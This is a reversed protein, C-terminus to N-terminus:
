GIVIEFEEVQIAMGVAVLRQEEQALVEGAISVRGQGVSQVRLREADIRDIRLQDRSVTPPLDLDVKTYGPALPAGSTGRRGVIWRRGDLTVSGITAGGQRVVLRLRRPAAAAASSAMSVPLEEGLMMTRDAPGTGGDSPIDETGEPVLVVAYLENPGLAPDAAITVHVPHDGFTRLRDARLDKMLEDNLHFAVDRVGAVEALEDYREPALRLELRSPVLRQRGTVIARDDRAARLAELSREILESANDRREGVPFLLDILRRLPSRRPM